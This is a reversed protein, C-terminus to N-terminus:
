GPTPEGDPVTARRRNLRRRLRFPARRWEALSPGPDRWSFLFAHKRHALSRLWAGTSLSGERRYALFAVADDPGRWIRVGARYRRAQAPQAGVIRDYIFQAVEIGSRRMLEHSATMRPNCEILKLVGDRSDRKFEVQAYGVFGVGRLFSLGAQEAEDDRTSVEYTFDGFSPPRLRLKQKRSGSIRGATPM